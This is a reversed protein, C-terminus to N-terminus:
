KGAHWLAAFQSQYDKVGVYYDQTGLVVSDVNDKTIMQAPALVRLVKSLDAGAFHRALVDMARWGIIDVPYGAWAREAGSKINALDSQSPVQGIVDVGSLGAVKMASSAGQSLDSTAFVAWKVSPNRQLFAVVNLPARTGIDSAQQNLTRTRCDACWEKVASQFSDAFATLIPYGPITFLAAEGKGGSHVVFYAAVLKGYLQEQAAGGIDALVGEVPGEGTVTSLVAIGETKAQRIQVTFTAAPLGSFTIADPHKALAGQFAGVANDPTTGASIESFNWGLAKAAAGEASALRQGAPTPLTLSVITKGSPAKAPLPNGALGISGPNESYGALFAAAAKVGPNATEDGGDASSTGTKGTGCAATALAIVAGALLVPVRSTSSAPMDTEIREFSRRDNLQPRQVRDPFANIALHNRSCM